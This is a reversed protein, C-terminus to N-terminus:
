PGCIKQSELLKPTILVDILTPHLPVTSLSLKIQLAKITRKSKAGSLRLESETFSTCCPHLSDGMTLTRRRKTKARIPRGDSRPVLVQLRVTAPSGYSPRLVIPFAAPQTGARQRALLLLQARTPLGALPTGDPHSVPKIVGGSACGATLLQVLSRCRIEEGACAGVIKMLRAANADMAHVDHASARQQRAITTAGTKSRGCTKPKVM